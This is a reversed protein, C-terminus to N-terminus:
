AKLPEGTEDFLRTLLLNGDADKQFNWLDRDAKHILTNGDRAAKVFFDTLDGLSAVRFSSVSSAIRGRPDAPVGVPASAKKGQGPRLYLASVTRLQGDDWQVFVRGEHSTIDGGASRVSVVEGGMGNGPPNDMSLYAGLSGAFTVRTGAPVPLSLAHAERHQDTLQRVSEFDEGLAKGGAGKLFSDMESEESQYGAAMDRWFQDSM